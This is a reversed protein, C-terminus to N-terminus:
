RRKRTSRKRQARKSRTKRKGGKPPPTVGTKVNAPPKGVSVKKMMNNMSVQPKMNSVFSMLQSASVGPKKLSNLNRPGSSPPVIGTKVYAPPRGISVSPASNSM